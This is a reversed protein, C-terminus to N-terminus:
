AEPEPVEEGTCYRFRSDECETIVTREGKFPSCRSYVAVRYLKQFGYFCSPTQIRSRSHTEIRENVHGITKDQPQCSYRLINKMQWLRPPSKNLFTLWLVM